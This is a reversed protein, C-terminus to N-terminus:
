SSLVVFSKVGRATGDRVVDIVDTPRVAVICSDVGERLESIAGYAEVGAVKGASPGVAVIRPTGAMQLFRLARAGPKIPDSSVGVVAVSRPEFLARLRERAVPTVTPSIDSGSLM